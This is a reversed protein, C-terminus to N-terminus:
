TSWVVPPNPAYICTTGYALHTNLHAALPEDADKIRDLLRTFAMVVTRRHRERDDGMRKRKSKFSVIRISKLIAGRRQSLQDHRVLNGEDLAEEMDEQLADASQKIEALDDMPMMEQGRSTAFQQPLGADQLVLDTASVRDGPRGLLRHLFRAGSVKPLPWLRGGNFKVQFDNGQDRFVNLEEEREAREHATSVFGEAPISLDTAMEVISNPPLTRAIVMPMARIGEREIARSVEDGHRRFLDHVRRLNQNTEGPLQRSVRLVQPFREIFTPRDMERLSRATEVYAAILNRPETRPRSSLLPDVKYHILPDFHENGTAVVAIRRDICQSCTGCHTKEYSWTWSHTCSTSSAIMHGGGADVIARVVDGKTLWLFPSEVQMRGLRGRSRLLTFLRAFGALVQPHTTRTARAGLMDGSIPLNISIVGNEYFKIASLGAVTAVTAALSAFLFSRTRQTYEKTLEEAKNVEVTLHLPPRCQAVLDVQSRLAHLRKNLKRSPLHTVFCPRGHQRVEALAGALSDLGGSFLCVSSLDGDGDVDLLHFYGQAGPPNVFERFEFDYHDDSLFSLTEVLEKKIAGNWLDPKRVPIHFVLNRHWDAQMDDLKYTGRKIAQDAVYVYTAIEILDIFEPEISSVLSETLADIELKVNAGRGDMALHLLRESSPRKVVPAGGGCWIHVRDQM